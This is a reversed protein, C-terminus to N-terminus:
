KQEKKAQAASSNFNQEKEEVIGHKAWHEKVTM